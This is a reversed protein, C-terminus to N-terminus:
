NTPQLEYGKARMCFGALRMEEMYPDGFADYPRAAVYPRGLGDRYFMPGTMARYELARWRAEQWAQMQCQQVDAQAQAEDVDPKVWAMPACAAAAIALVTTWFLKM